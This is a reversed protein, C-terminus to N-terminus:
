KFPGSFVLRVRTKPELGKRVTKEVIGRPPRIGPDKWTERRGSAPLSALYRCVLPRVAEVDFSGAFVFTFGSADAFRDKYFAISKVLSM